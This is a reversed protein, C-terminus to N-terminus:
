TALLCAAALSEQMPAPGSQLRYGRRSLPEGSTDVCLTAENDRWHLHFVSQNRDGGSDPRKGCAKVMRDAIADKARLAAFRPDRIGPMDVGTTISFHGDAHLLNEWPENVLGAYLEDPSRAAFRAIPMLVRQATRLWLNLRMADALGGHIRCATEEVPEPAYGLARLEDSLMPVAGRGCTVILDGPQELARM